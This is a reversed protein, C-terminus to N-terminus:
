KSTINLQPPFPTPLITPQHVMGVRPDARVLSLKTEQLLLQQQSEDLKLATSPFFTARLHVDKNSVHLRAAPRQFRKREMTFEQSFSRLSRLALQDLFRHISQTTYQGTRAPGQPPPNVTMPVAKKWEGPSRALCDRVESSQNVPRPSPARFLSFLCSVTLFCLKNSQRFCQIFSCLTRFPTAAGSINLPNPTAPHPIPTGPPRGDCAPPGDSAHRGCPRGDAEAHLLM